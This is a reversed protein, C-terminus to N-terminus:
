DTPPDVGLTLAEFVAALAGKVDGRLRRIEGQEYFDAAAAFTNIGELKRSAIVLRDEILQCNETATLLHLRHM